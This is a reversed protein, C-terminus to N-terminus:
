PTVQPRWSPQLLRVAKVLRVSAIKFYQNTRQERLTQRYFQKIDDAAVAGETFYFARDTKSLHTYSITRNGLIAMVPAKYTMLEKFESVKTKKFRAKIALNDVVPYYDSNARIDSLLFLPHIVDKNGVNRAQIDQINKLEIKGLEAATAPINFIRDSLHSLFRATKPPLM